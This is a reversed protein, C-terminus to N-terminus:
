PIVVIEGKMKKHGLGCFHSCKFAYTGTKEPTFVIRADQDKTLTVDELKLDKCSFGHKTDESRFVLEVPEGAKLEIRPPEFEYKKALITITRRESPQASLLCPVLLSAAAVRAGLRITM